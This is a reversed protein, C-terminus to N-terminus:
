IWYDGIRMMCHDVKLEGFRAPRMRFIRENDLCIVTMTLRWLGRM